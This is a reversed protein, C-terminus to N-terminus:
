YGEGSGTPAASKDKGSKGDQAKSSDSSSGLFQIEQIELGDGDICFKVKAEGVDGLKMDALPPFEEVGVNCLHPYSVKDPNGMDNMKKPDRGLDYSKSAAMNNPGRTFETGAAEAAM